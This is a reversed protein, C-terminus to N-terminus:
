EIYKNAEDAFDAATSDFEAYASTKLTKSFTKV